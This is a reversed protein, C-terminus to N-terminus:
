ARAEADFGVYDFRRAKGRGIAGEAAGAHIVEIRNRHFPM